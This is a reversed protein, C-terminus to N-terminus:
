VEPAAGNIHKQVLSLFENREVLSTFFRNPIIHAHHATVYIAAFGPRAVAKVVGPWYFVSRNFKTEEHLGEDQVEVIHRTFISRNSKTFHFAANLLFQAAWAVTYLFLATTAASVLTHGVVVEGMFILGAFALYMIQLVPSLFQHVANFLLVDLLTNTYEIRM